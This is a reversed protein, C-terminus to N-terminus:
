ALKTYNLSDTKLVILMQKIVRKFFNNEQINYKTSTIFVLTCFNLLNLKIFKVELKYPTFM